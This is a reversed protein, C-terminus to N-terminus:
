LIDDEIMGKMHRQKENMVIQLSKQRREYESTKDRMSITTFFHLNTSADFIEENEYVSEPMKSYIELLISYNYELMAMYYEKSLEIYRAYLSYSPAIKQLITIHDRLASDFSNVSTEFRNLLNTSIGVSDLIAYDCDWIKLPSKTHLQHLCYTAYSELYRVNDGDVHKRDLLREWEKYLSTLVQMDQDCMLQLSMLQIACENCVLEVDESVEPQEILQSEQTKVPAEASGKCLLLCLTVAVIAVAIVSYITIRLAKSRPRSVLFNRKLREITDVFLNADNIMVGNYMPLDRLSAPLNEAAPWEFNRLMVPIINKKHKLAHEVECRVWDNEDNCRELANPPLVLIFDKCGEIVELLRENFKGAHLTEIDVFVSYGAATLKMAILNAIDFSVRRYSIFIDYRKSM